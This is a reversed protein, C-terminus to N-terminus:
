GFRRCVGYKSFAQARIGKTQVLKGIIEPLFDDYKVEMLMTDPTDTASIDQVSPELFKRHLGGTRLESDFTVRVNGPAYVYPERVYSVLVKPRLPGSKMKVYLEQVLADPHDMMWETDGALIRRCEEETLRASFKKCLGNDKVKKELKIYSFDDNYYRIRFKERHSVGNIKDWLAKDRYNDFYISRIVYTGDGGAHGDPKMVTRLRQRLAMYDSRSIQYKLEHRYRPM